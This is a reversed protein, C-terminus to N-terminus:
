KHGALKIVSLDKQAEVVDAAADLVGKHRM